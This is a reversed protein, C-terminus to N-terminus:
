RRSRHRYTPEVAASTETEVAPAATETVLVPAPKHKLSPALGPKTRWSSEGCRECTLRTQGGSHLCCGCYRITM